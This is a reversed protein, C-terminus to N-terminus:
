PRGEQHSISGQQLAPLQRFSLPSRRLVATVFLMVV